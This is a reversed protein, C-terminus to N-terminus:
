SSEYTGDALIDYALDTSTQEHSWESGDYYFYLDISGFVSIIGDDFLVEIGEKIVVAIVVVSIVRVAGIRNIFQGDCSSFSVFIGSCIISSQNTPINEPQAQGCGSFMLAACIGWIVALQKSVRM